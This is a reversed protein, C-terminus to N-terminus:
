VAVTQSSGDTFIVFAAYSRGMHEYAMADDQLDSSTDSIQVPHGYSRLEYHSVTRSTGTM